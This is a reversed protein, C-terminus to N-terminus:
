MILLALFVLKLKVRIKFIMNFIQIKNHFSVGDCSSFCYGLCMFIFILQRHKTNLVIKEKNDKSDELAHEPSLLKVVSDSYIDSETM